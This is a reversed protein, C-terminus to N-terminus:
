FGINVIPFFRLEAERIINILGIQYGHMTDSRNIIGIQLGETEGCVNVLGAQAGSMSNAENWIGIQIGALNGSGATNYIGCQCGAMSDKADNRLINAQIGEFYQAKGWFGVDIGTVNVHRTSYPITLRLGAIDTASPFECIAFFAPWSDSVRREGRPAIPADDNLQAEQAFVPAAIAALLAMSVLKKM